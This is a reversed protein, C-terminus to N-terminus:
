FVNLWFANQLGATTIFLNKNELCGNIWIIPIFIKLFSEIVEQDETIKLKGLFRLASHYSKSKIGDKRAWMRGKNNWREIMTKDVKIERGDEVNWAQWHDFLDLWVCFYLRGGCTDLFKISSEDWWRSSVSHPVLDYLEISSINKPLHLIQEMSYNKIRGDKNYFAIVYDGYGVRHWENNTVVYGGDDSMYVEVPAVENNLKCQWLPVRETGKVEFVELLPKEKEKAPTVHAVFRGNESFYDKEVAQPWQDACSVKVATVALFLAFITLNKRM